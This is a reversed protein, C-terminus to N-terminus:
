DKKSPALISRLWSWYTNDHHLYAQLQAQNSEYHSEKGKGNRNDNKPEQQFLYERTLMRRKPNLMKIVKAPNGGVVAYDPVDEVVVSGAAVVAHKGITVGKGIIARLGIWANENITVPASCRFPRTRNYLGHWDCDSINVEAAIMCNDCIRISVASAISVGPSVLCHDGIHIEGQEQKSSWCSLSVPKHNESIIHLHKGAHINKGALSISRPRYFFPHTGLSDFQPKLIRNVYLANLWQTFRLFSLPRHEKRM